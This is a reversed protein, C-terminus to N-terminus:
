GVDSSLPAESDGQRGILCGCRSDESESDSEIKVFHESDSEIKVAPQEEEEEEKVEM